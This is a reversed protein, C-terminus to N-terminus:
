ELELENLINEIEDDFVSKEISTSKVSRNDLYDILDNKAANIFGQYKDNMEGHFKKDESKVPVLHVEYGLGKIMRQLPVLGLDNGDMFKTFQPSFTKGLTVEVIPLKKYGQDILSKFLDRLVVNLEHSDM